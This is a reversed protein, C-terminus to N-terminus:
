SLIEKILNMELLKGTEITAGNDHKRVVCIYCNGDDTVHLVVKVQFSVLEIDRM